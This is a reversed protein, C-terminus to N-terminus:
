ALKAVFHHRVRELVGLDLATAEDGDGGYAIMGCCEADYERHAHAVIDALLDPAILM